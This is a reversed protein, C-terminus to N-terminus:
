HRWHKQLNLRSRTDAATRGGANATVAATFLRPLPRTKSHTQFITAAPTLRSQSRNRKGDTKMRKTPVGPCVQRMWALSSKPPAIQRGDGRDDGPRIAHNIYVIRGAHSVRVPKVTSHHWLQTCAALFIPKAFNAPWQLLIALRSAPNKSTFIPTGLVFQVHFAPFLTLRGSCFPTEALSEPHGNVFERRHRMIMRRERFDPGIRRLFQRFPNLRDLVRRGLDM